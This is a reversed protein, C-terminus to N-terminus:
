QLVTSIHSRPCLGFVKYKVTTAWRRCWSFHRYFRQETFHVPYNLQEYQEQNLWIPSDISNM